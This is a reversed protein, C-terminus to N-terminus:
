QKLFLIFAILGQYLRNESDQILRCDSLPVLIFAILEQYLGNELDQISRCESLCQKNGGASSSFDFVAKTQRKLIFSRSAVVDKGCPALAISSTLMWM